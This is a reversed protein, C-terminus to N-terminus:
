FCQLVGSVLPWQANNLDQARPVSKVMLRWFPHWLQWFAPFAKSSTSSCAYENPLVPRSLSVLFPSITPLHDLKWHQVWLFEDLQANVGRLSHKTISGRSSTLFARYNISLEAWLGLLGRAFSESGSKHKQFRKQDGFRKSSLAEHSSAYSQCLLKLNRLFRLQLSQMWFKLPHTFQQRSVCLHFARAFRM